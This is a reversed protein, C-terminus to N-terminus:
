LSHDKGRRRRRKAWVSNCIAEFVIMINDGCLRPLDVPFSSEENLKCKKEVKCKRGLMGPLDVLLVLLYVAIVFKM